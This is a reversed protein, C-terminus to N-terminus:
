YLKIIIDYKTQMQDFWSIIMQLKMVFVYLWMNVEKGKGM